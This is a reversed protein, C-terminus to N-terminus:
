ALPMGYEDMRNAIKKMLSKVAIFIPESEEPKYKTEVHMTANRWANRVADLSALVEFFFQKDDKSAWQSKESIADSIKKILIGWNRGSAKVPDPIALSKRIAEIGIEVVRMLHFVAATDLGLGICKSAEEVEYAIKPLKQVVELGFPPSSPFVYGAQTDSLTLFKRLTCEDEMRAYLDKLGQAIESANLGMQGALREAQIRCMPLDLASFDQAYERLKSANNLQVDKELTSGAEANEYEEALRGLEKALLLLNPLFFEKMEWLNWLRNSTNM